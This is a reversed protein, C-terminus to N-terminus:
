AQEDRTVGKMWTNAMFVLFILGFSNLLFLYNFLIQLGALPILIASLVVAAAFSGLLDWGYGLGTQSEKKFLLVNAVIFFNGGLYGLLFLFAFLIPAAPNAKLSLKMALVLMLFCFQLVIIELFRHKKRKAGM